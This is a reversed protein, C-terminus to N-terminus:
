DVNGGGSVHEVDDEDESVKIEKLELFGELAMLGIYASKWVHEIEDDNLSAAIADESGDETCTEIFNVKFQPEVEVIYKLASLTHILAVNVPM